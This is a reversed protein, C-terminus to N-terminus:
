IQPPKCTNPNWRKGLHGFIAIPLSCQLWKVYSHYLYIGPFSLNFAILYFLILILRVKYKDSFFTKGKKRLFDWSFFYYIAKLTHNVSSQQAKIRTERLPYLNLLRFLRLQDIKSYGVWLEGLRLITLNQSMPIGIAQAMPIKLIRLIRLYWSIESPTYDMLNGIYRSCKPYWFEWTDSFTYPM